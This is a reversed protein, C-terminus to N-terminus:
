TYFKKQKNDPRKASGGETAFTGKDSGRKLKKSLYVGRGSVLLFSLNFLLHQEHSMGSIVSGCGCPVEEWAGLVATATYGTFALLQVFSLWMGHYNTKPHILLGIAAAEALPVLGILGYGMWSPFPQLLMANIFSRPDSLREISVPIWLLLLLTTVVLLAKERATARRRSLTIKVREM